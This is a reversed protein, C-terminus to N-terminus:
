HHYHHHVEQVVVLQLLSQSLSCSASGDYDTMGQQPFHSPSSPLRRTMVEELKQWCHDQQKNKVNKHMLCTRGQHSPAKRAEKEWCLAPDLSCYRGPRGPCCRRTLTALGSNQHLRHIHQQQCHYLELLLPLLVCGIILDWSDFTCGLRREVM